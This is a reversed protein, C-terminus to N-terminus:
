FAYYDLSKIVLKEAQPIFVINDSEEQPYVRTTMVECGDNIFIEIASKALFIQFKLIDGFPQLIVKRVG